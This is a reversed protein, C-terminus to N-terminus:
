EDFREKMEDKMEISGQYSGACALRVLSRSSLPRLGSRNM